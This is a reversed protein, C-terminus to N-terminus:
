GRRRRMEKKKKKKKKKKDEQRRQHRFGACRTMERSSMTLTTYKRRMRRSQMADNTGFSACRAKECSKKKTNGKDGPRRLHWFERVEDKERSKKKM